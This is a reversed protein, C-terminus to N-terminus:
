NIAITKFAPNATHKELRVFIVSLGSLEVLVSHEGLPPDLEPGLPHGLGHGLGEVAVGHAALPPALCVVLQPVYFIQWPLYMRVNSNLHMGVNSM